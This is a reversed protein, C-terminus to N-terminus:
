EKIGNEEWWKGLDQAEEDLFLFGKEEWLERDTEEGAILRTLPRAALNVPFAFLTKYVLDNGNGIFNIARATIFAPCPLIACVLFLLFGLFAGVIHDPLSDKKEKDRTRERYRKMLAREIVSLIILFIIFYILVCVLKSVIGVLQPQGLDSKDAYNYYRDGLMSNRVSVLFDNVKDAPIPNFVKMLYYGGFGAIMIKGVSSMFDTLSRVAGRNWGNYLTVFFLCVIVINIVIFHAPVAHVMIVYEKRFQM